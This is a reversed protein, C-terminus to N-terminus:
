DRKKAGPYGEGVEAALTRDFSLSRSQKIVPKKSAADMLIVACFESLSMGNSRALRRLEEKSRIDINISLNTKGPGLPNTAM